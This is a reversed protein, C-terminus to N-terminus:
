AALQELRALAEKKGLRRVVAIAPLYQARPRVEGGEWKYVSLASVGLLAGYDAASLGLRQRHKALGKASWRHKGDIEQDKHPLAKGVVKATNKSQRELTAVRRKLAAIESRYGTVAKKLHETSARLEKRSLRIIEEKLISAINPM